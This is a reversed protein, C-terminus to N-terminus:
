CLLPFVLIWDSSYGVVYSSVRFVAVIVRRSAVADADAGALALGCAIGTSYGFHIPKWEFMVFAKVLCAKNKEMEPELNM